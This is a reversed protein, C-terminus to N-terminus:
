VVAQRLVSSAPGRLVTSAPGHVYQVVTARIAIQIVCSEAKLKRYSASRVVCTGASLAKRYLAPWTQGLAPTWLPRGM